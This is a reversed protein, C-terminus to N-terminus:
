KVLPRISSFGGDISWIQGTVRNASESLLWAMLDAVDEPNGIGKIPYQKAAIERTLDSSLINSAAPTDLIGPAVANIRVGSNAYTAASSIVLGELGAKAAAIAEHNPTGIKAAASSVLVASGSASSQKIHNIFAALTYFASFLNSRMCDMFDSESMRHLAGLKINGVCHVLGTPIVGLEKIGEFILKIGEASSCDGVIQIHNDGYIAKLQQQDRSVLVMKWGDELLKKSVAQGLGGCAGTILALKDM